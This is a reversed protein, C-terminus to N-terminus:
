RFLLSLPKEKINEKNKIRIDEETANGYRDQLVETVTNANCLLKDRHKKVRLKTQERIPKLSKLM